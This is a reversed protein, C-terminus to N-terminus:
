NRAEAAQTRGRAIVGPVRNAIEDAGGSQRWQRSLDAEIEFAAGSIEAEIRRYSGHLALVAPRHNAAITAALARARSLLQDHPVVETVLGCELARRADVFDGTFSMRRAMTFGVREPLLVSLGWGPMIGVRAHTDAFVARESAILFDCNLALELGGTIAAGNVAGILPKGIPEWPSSSSPPQGTVDSPQRSAQGDHGTRGEVGDLLDSSVSLEKLDLGACFAPDAGTLIVAGVGEDSGLAAFTARLQRLLPRSLANRAAPRNLTVTAVGDQSEVLVLDETM